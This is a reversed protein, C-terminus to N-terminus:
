AALSGSTADGPPPTPSAVIRSPSAATAPQVARAREARLELRDYLEDFAEDELEPWRNLFQQVLPENTVRVDHQDHFWSRSV